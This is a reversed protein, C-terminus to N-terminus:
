HFSPRRPWSPQSRYVRRLFHYRSASSTSSWSSLSGESSFTEAKVWARSFSFSCPVLLSFSESCSGLLVLAPRELEVGRLDRRRRQNLLPLLSFSRALLPPPPPPLVEASTPRDVLEFGFGFGFGVGEPSPETESPLARTVGGRGILVLERLAECYLPRSPLTMVLSLALALVRSFSIALECSRSSRHPIRAAPPVSLASRSNPNLSSTFIPNLQSTGEPKKKTRVMWRGEPHQHKIRTMATETETERTPRKQRPQHNRNPHTIPKVHVSEFVRNFNM